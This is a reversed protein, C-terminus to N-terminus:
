SHRPRRNRALRLLLALPVVQSWWSTPEPVVISDIDEYFLSLEYSDGLGDTTMPVDETGRFTEVEIRYQTNPELVASPITRTTETILITDDELIDEDVGTTTSVFLAIGDACTAPAGGCGTLVWTVPLDIDTDIDAGPAPSTIAAYATPAAVDFEVVEFDPGGVGTINVTYNQGPGTPFATDLALQTDFEQECCFENGGIFDDMPCSAALPTVVEASTADTAELCLEVFYASNPPM